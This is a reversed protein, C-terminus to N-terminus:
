QDHTAGLAIKIAVLADDLSEATPKLDFRRDVRWIQVWGKQEKLAERMRKNEAVLEEYSPPLGHDGEAM